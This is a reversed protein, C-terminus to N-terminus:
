LEEVSSREDLSLEDSEGMEFWREIRPGLGCGIVLVEMHDRSGSRLMRRSRVDSGKGVWGEGQTCASRTTELVFFCGSFLFAGHWMGLVM